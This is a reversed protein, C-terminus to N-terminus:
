LSTSSPLLYLFTSDQEVRSENRCSEMVEPHLLPSVHGTKSVGRIILNIASLEAHIGAVMPATINHRCKSYNFSQYM